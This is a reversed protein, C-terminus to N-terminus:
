GRADGEVVGEAAAAGRKAAAGAAEAAGKGGKESSGAGGEAGGEAEAEAEADEGGEGEAEGEAEEVSGYVLFAETGAWAAALAAGQPLAARWTLDPQYPIPGPRAPRTPDPPTGLSSPGACVRGQM